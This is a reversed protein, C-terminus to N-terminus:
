LIVRTQSFFGIRKGGKKVSPLQKVINTKNKISDYFVIGSDNSGNDPNRPYRFNNTIQAFSSMKTINNQGVTSNTIHEPYSDGLLISSSVRTNNNTFPELTYGNIDELKTASLLVFLITIFLVVIFPLFM